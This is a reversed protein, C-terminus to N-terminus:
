LCSTPPEFGEVGMYGCNKYQPKKQKFDKERGSKVKRSVIVTVYNEDIYQDETNIM